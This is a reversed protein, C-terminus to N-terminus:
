VAFETYRAAREGHGDPLADFSEDLQHRDWVVVGDQRKPIPMLGRAVWDDFTSPLIGLYRAAEERRFGRPLCPIEGGAKPPRADVRGIYRKQSDIGGTRRRGM